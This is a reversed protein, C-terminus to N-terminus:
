LSQIPLHPTSRVPEPYPGTSPQQSCPSSDEPEKFNAPFKRFPQLIPLKEPLASSRVYTLLYSGSQGVCVGCAARVRVRTMPPKFGSGLSRVPKSTDARGEDPVTLLCSSRHLMLPLRAPPDDLGTTPLSIGSVVKMTEQSLRKLQPVAEPRVHSLLLSNM